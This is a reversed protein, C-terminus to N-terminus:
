TPRRSSKTSKRITLISWQQAPLLSGQVDVMTWLGQKRWHWSGHCEKARFLGFYTTMFDLNITRSKAKDGGRLIGLEMLEPDSCGLSGGTRVYAGLEEKISTCCVVDGQQSMWKIHWPITMLASWFGELNSTGQQTAEWAVLSICCKKPSKYVDFIWLFTLFNSLPLIINIFM